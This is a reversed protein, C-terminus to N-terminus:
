LKHCNEGKGISVKLIIRGHGILVDSMDQKVDEDLLESEGGSLLGHLDPFM